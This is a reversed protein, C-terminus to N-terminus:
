WLWKDINESAEYAQTVDGLTLCETNEFAYGLITSTIKFWGPFTDESECILHGPTLPIHKADLSIVFLSIKAPEVRITYAAKGYL